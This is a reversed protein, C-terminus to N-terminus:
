KPDAPKESPKEGDPKPEAPKDGAAKASKGTLLAGIEFLDPVYTFAKLDLGDGKFTVKQVGKGGFVDKFGVKWSVTSGDESKTGNTEVITGPVTISQAMELSAAYPELMASLMSPDMGGPMAAAPDVTFTFSGDANKVLTTKGLFFVIGQGLLSWNKFEVTCAGVLKGDKKDTKFDKVTLGEIKRLRAELAKLGAAPDDPVSPTPEGMAAGGPTGAGASMMETALASLATVQALDLEIRQTVVGSGDKNLATKGDSKLCGVLAASAALSLVFAVRALSIKSM